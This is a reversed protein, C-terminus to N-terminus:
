SGQGAGVSVRCGTVTLVTLVLLLAAASLVSQIDTSDPLVNRVSVVLSTPSVFVVDTQIVSVSRCVQEKVCVSTATPFPTDDPEVATVASETWEQDASVVDLRTM